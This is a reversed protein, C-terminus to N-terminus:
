FLENTFLDPSTKVGVINQLANVTDKILADSMTLVPGGAAPRMFPKMAELTKVQSTATLGLSKGYKTVTTQAAAAPDGLADQWGQQSAAVVKKLLAAKDPDKLAAGTTVLVDQMRNFGYDALLMTHTQVGKEGLTVPQNTAIGWLADIEGAVLPAPDFSIPVLTVKAPDVGNKRLFALATNKGSLTIGLKKGVIDGPTKVPAKAPSVWCEPSRRFQAGVIKLDNGRQAANAVNEPVPEVALLAKGTLVIPEPSTAPGGPLINPTLGNKAFHGNEAAMFFGSYEADPVWGLQLSFDQSGSSGGGCASLLSTAGLLLTGSGALRLADRRSIGARPLNDDM